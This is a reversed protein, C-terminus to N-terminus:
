IMKTTSTSCQLSCVSSHKRKQNQCMIETRSSHLIKKIKKRLVASLFLLSTDVLSNEFQTSHNSTIRSLCECFSWEQSKFHDKNEGTWSFSLSVKVSITGAQLVCASSFMITLQCMFCVSLLSWVCVHMCSHSIHNFCGLVKKVSQWCLPISTRDKNEHPKKNNKYQEKKQKERLFIVQGTLTSVYLSCISGYLACPSVSPLLFPHSHYAVTRWLWFVTVLIILWFLLFFFFSNMSSYQHHISSDWLRTGCYCISRYRNDTVTDKPERCVDWKVPTVSARYIYWHHEPAKLRRRARASQGVGGAGGVDMHNVTTWWLRGGGGWGMQWILARNGGKTTETEGGSGWVSPHVATSVTLCSNRWRHKMERKLWCWSAESTDTYSSYISQNIVSKWKDAVPMSEYM